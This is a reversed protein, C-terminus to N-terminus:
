MIYGVTPLYLKVRTWTGLVVFLASARDLHGARVKIIAGSVVGVDSNERWMEKCM